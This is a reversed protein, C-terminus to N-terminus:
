WEGEMLWHDFRTLWGEAVPRNLHDPGYTLLNEIISAAEGVAFSLQSTQDPAPMTVTDNLPPTKM